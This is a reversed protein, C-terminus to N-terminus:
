HEDWTKLLKATREQLWELTAPKPSAYHLSTFRLPGEGSHFTATLTVVSSGSHIINTNRQQKPDFANVVGIKADGRLRRSAVIYGRPNTLGLWNEDSMPLPPEDGHNIPLAYSGEVLTWGKLTARDADLTHARFEFEGALRIRTTVAIVKDGLKTTWTTEVGDDLLKGDTVTLRTACKGDADRFVVAQDWPAYDKDKM